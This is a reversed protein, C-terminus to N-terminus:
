CDIVLTSRSQSPPPQVVEVQHSAAEVAAAVEELVLASSQMAPDVGGSSSRSADSGSDLDDQPVAGAANDARPDDDRPPQPLVLEQCLGCVQEAQREEADADSEFDNLALCEPCQWDSCLQLPGCRSVLEESILTYLGMWSIHKPCCGTGTINCSRVVTSLCNGRTSRPTARFRTLYPKGEEVVSACARAVRKRSLEKVQAARSATSAEMPAPPKQPLPMNVQLAVTRTQVTKKKTPKRARPVRGGSSAGSAGSGPRSWSSLSLTGAGTPSSRSSTVISMKSSSYQPPAPADPPETAAAAACAGPLMDEALLADADAEQASQGEPSAAQVAGQSDNNVLEDSSVAASCLKSDGAAAAAAHNESSPTSLLRLQPALSSSSGAATSPTTQFRVKAAATISMPSAAPQAPAEEQSGAISNRAEGVQQVCFGMRSGELKYPVMRMEFQLTGSVCTVLVISPPDGREADGFFKSLTSHDRAEVLSALPKGMLVTGGFRSCMQASSHLITGDQCDVVGFGDAAADLLRQNCRLEMQLDQFLSAITYELGMCGCCIVTTMMFEQLILQYQLQRAVSAFTAVCWLSVVVFSHCGMFSAVTMVFSTFTIGLPNCSFEELTTHQSVVLLAVGLFVAVFADPILTSMGCYSSRTFALGVAIFLVDSLLCFRMPIDTYNRRCITIATDIALLCLGISPLLVKWSQRRSM